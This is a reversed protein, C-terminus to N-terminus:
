ARTLTLTCDYPSGGSTYGGSTSDYRGSARISTGDFQGTLSNKAPPGNLLLYTRTVTVSPPNVSVSIDM